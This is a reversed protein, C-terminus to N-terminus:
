SVMDVAVAAGLSGQSPDQFSPHPYHPHLRDDDLHHDDDYRHPGPPYPGPTPPEPTPPPTPFMGPTPAPASCGANCTSVSPYKGSTGRIEVCEYTHPPDFQCNFSSIIPPVPTPFGPTPFRPTPPPTPPPTPLVESCNAGTYGSTCSCSCVAPTPSYPTPAAMCTGHGSCDSNQGGCCCGELPSDKCAAHVVAKVMCKLTAPCFVCGAQVSCVHIPRPTHLDINYVHGVRCYVSCVQSPATSCAACNLKACDPLKTECADGVFGKQCHCKCTSPLWHPHPIPTPHIAPSTYIQMGQAYEGNEMGMKSATFTEVCTGHGSCEAQCCCGTLLPTPPPPTPAPTPPTPPPTPPAPTPPPTPPVTCQNCESVPNECYCVPPKWLSGCGSTASCFMNCEALNMPLYKGPCWDPSATFRKVTFLPSATIRTTSPSLLPAPPLAPCTSNRVSYLDDIAQPRKGSMCTQTTSCYACYAQPTQITNTVGYKKLNQFQRKM